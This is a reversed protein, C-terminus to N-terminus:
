ARTLAAPSIIKWELPLKSNSNGAPLALRVTAFPNSNQGSVVRTTMSVLSTVIARTVRVRM